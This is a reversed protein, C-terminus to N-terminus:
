GGASPVAADINSLLVAAAVTIFPADVAVADVKLLKKWPVTETLAPPVNIGCYV